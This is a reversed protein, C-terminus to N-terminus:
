HPAGPNFLWYPIKDKTLRRSEAHTDFFELTVSGGHRKENAHMMRSGTTGTGYAPNATGSSNFTTTSPSFVNMDGYGPMQGKGARDANIETIYVVESPRPVTSLKHFYKVEASSQWNAINAQMDLTNVLYHLPLINNTDKIAPCQFFKYSSFYKNFEADVTALSTFTFTKGGIYPALLNAWMTGVSPYDSPVRDNFDAAYMTAAIGFQRLTNLCQIRHAKEKAKALAPLLMAALIAIIAIVVLLEILTFGLRIGPQSSRSNKNM